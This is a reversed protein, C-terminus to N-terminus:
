GKAMKELFVEPFDDALSLIAERKGVSIPTSVVVM